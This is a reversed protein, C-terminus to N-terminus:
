VSVVYSSLMNKGDKNMTKLGNVIPEKELPNFDFFAKKRKM